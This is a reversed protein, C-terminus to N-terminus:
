TILEEKLINSSFRSVEEPLWVRKNMSYACYVSRNEMDELNGLISNGNLIGGDIGVSNCSCTKFDHVSKSEITQKCKKCYIAHRIQIYRLGGYVISPM